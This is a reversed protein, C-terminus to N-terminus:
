HLAQDFADLWEIVERVIERAKVAEDKTLARAMDKAPYRRCFSRMKVPGILNFEHWASSGAGSTVWLRTPSPPNPSAVLKEFSREPIKGIRRAANAAPRSLGYEQLLASPGPKMGGNGGRPMPRLQEALQSMRRYAHLKLRKAELAAENSRFIKAWAALADAKDSYYKAEDM